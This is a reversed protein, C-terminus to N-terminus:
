YNKFKSGDVSDDYDDGKNLASATLKRQMASRAGALRPKNRRPKEGHLTFQQMLEQLKM